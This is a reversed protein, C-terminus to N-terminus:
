VEPTYSGGISGPYNRLLLFVLSISHGFSAYDKTGPVQPSGTGLESKLRNGSLSVCVLLGDSTIPLETNLSMFSSIGVAMALLRGPALAILVSDWKFSSALALRLYILDYYMNATIVGKLRFRFSVKDFPSDSERWTNRDNKDLFSSWDM